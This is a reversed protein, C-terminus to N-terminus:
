SLGMKLQENTFAQRMADEEEASGSSDNFGLFNRSEGFEETLDKMGRKYQDAVPIRENCPPPCHVTQTFMLEYLSRPTELHCRPCVIPIFHKVTLM